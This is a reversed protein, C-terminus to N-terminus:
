PAIGCDWEYTNPGEDGNMNEKVWALYEESEGLTEFTYPEGRCDCKTVEVMPCGTLARVMQDIAWMKHHEGAFGGFEMAIDLAKVVRANADM